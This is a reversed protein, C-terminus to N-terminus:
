QNFVKKGNLKKADPIEIDFLKINKMKVITWYIKMLTESSKENSECVPSSAM